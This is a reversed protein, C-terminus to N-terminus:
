IFTNVEKWQLGVNDDYLEDAVIIPHSGYNSKGFNTFKRFMVSRPVPIELATRTDAKGNEYSEKDSLRICCASEINLTEILVSRPYHCLEKLLFQDREWVLHTGIPIREITPYVADIKKQVDREHIIDSEPLEAFSLDVIDKNYPLCDRTNEPPSIVHIDKIIRDTITKDTRYRNVRGFRQIMADIPAADTIMMDFSIDLSVEVVQTSIVICNGPMRERNNFKEKLNRELKNRDIRRFRSHILMIPIKPFQDILIKFREQARDVRNCVILIKENREIANGITKIAEEETKHKYIRHRDFTDLIKDDLRVVFTNDAGGLITMIERVLVTPMTATGVHIKCNLKLLVKIIEIVMSQAVASYSHIEDLIVDCGTIDVAISEFGRTGCILAALQHPTLVKIAAGVKTQLAREEYTNKDHLIMRSAAHLVRVDTEDPLCARFREYMANISAQFPLTYFVRSKCRRMLFDTKGAGTPATVLTHPRENNVNILSLPYVESKRKVSHFYSLDPFDFLTPTIYIIKESLASALHDSSVLLGKYKSWGMEKNLCYEIAYNFAYEADARDIAYTEFHLSSLIDLAIQHWEDWPELHREFVEEDGELNVLDIIGQYRADKIPSRHHAIIMDILIDWHTKDTLPLFFLSSIEHRFDIQLSDYIGKLRQQFDPHAKGIDHLMAGQRALASNYKLKKAAIVTVESVHLLHDYLTVGGNEMSKALIEPHTNM